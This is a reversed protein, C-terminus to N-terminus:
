RRPSTSSSSRWTRAPFLDKMTMTLFEERAYGYAAVMANSVALIVFTDREYAVMPQPNHEFLLSRRLGDSQPPARREDRTM